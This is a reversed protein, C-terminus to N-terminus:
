EGGSFLPRIMAARAVDPHMDNDRTLKGQPMHAIDWLRELAQENYPVEFITNGLVMDSWLQLAEPKKVALAYKALAYARWAKDAIRLDKRDRSKWRLSRELACLQKACEAVSDVIVGEAIGMSVRNELTFFGPGDVRLIMGSIGALKMAAPVQRTAGIMPLHLSMDVRMGTGADCPRATLFGYQGSRAIRGTDELQRALAACTEYCVHPDGDEDYASILLHDEGATEVCAKEDERLYAICAAAEKAEPSILRCQELKERHEENMGGVILYAFGEKSRELAVQARESVRKATEENADADFPLDAYNRRLTVSADLVYDKM